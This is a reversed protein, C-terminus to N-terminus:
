PPLGYLHRSKFVSPSHFHVIKINPITQILRAVAYDEFMNSNFWERSEIIKKIAVASIFYFRGTSYTIGVLPVPKRFEEDVNAYHYTCEYTGSFWPNGGYDYGEIKELVEHLEKIECVMDDDTKLIYKLDPFIKNIASIGLHTKIPLQEYTDKCKVYIISNESDELFETSLEPDGIIHFWPLTIEKLWSDIQRQAKYRYKKCNLIM